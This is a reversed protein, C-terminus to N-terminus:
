IVDISDDTSNNEILLIEYSNIHDAVFTQGLLSDLCRALYKKANHVPVIISVQMLRITAHIRPNFFRLKSTAAKATFAASTTAKM